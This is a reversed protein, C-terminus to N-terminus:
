HMDFTRSPLELSQVEKPQVQLVHSPHELVELQVLVVFTDEEVLGYMMRRDVRGLIRHVVLDLVMRRVVLAHLM